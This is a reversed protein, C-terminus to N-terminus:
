EAPSLPSGALPPLEGVGGPPHGRRDAPGRPRLRQRRKGPVFLHPEILPDLGDRLRCLRAALALYDGRIEPVIVAVDIDSDGHAEGRVYSGFLVIQSDPLEDVVLRAYAEVVRRVEQTDMATVSRYGRDAGPLTRRDFFAPLADKQAPYHAEINLPELLDLLAQNQPGLEEYADGLKALRVLAHTYPPMARTRLAVLGKLAKEAVQHCMFGVYLYRANVLMVRATDLDYQALDLWYAMQRMVQDDDPHDEPAMDLCEVM